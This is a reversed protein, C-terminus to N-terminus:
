PYANTKGSHLKDIAEKDTHQFYSQKFVTNVAQCKAM